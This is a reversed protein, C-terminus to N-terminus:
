LEGGVDITEKKRELMSQGEGRRWCRNDREEGRGDFPGKEM